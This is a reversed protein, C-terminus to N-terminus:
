SPVSNKNTLNKILFQAANSPGDVGSMLKQMSKAKQQMEDDHLASEILSLLVKKSLDKKRLQIANGYLVCENINAVQEQQLGMGIFPKGTLCATQVTGEGGHIISLDIKGALKHAPLLDCIYINEHQSFIAASSGLTRKMPCVVTLPLAALIHLMKLVIEKGGSSGMAFYVIPLKRPLEDFWSPLEGELKAYIPGVYTYNSPLNSIGSIEPLTTILNHDADLADITLKPLQVGYEKALQQFAKPKYTISTAIKRYLKKIIDVPLFKQSLIPPLALHGKLFYIKTYTLPKIYFLPTQCARASIFLSLTTGIVVAVPQYLHIIRQESEIRHKLMKYTFPHKIGKMQDVKMIQVVDKETLHPELHIFTFNAEEILYAYKTSYGIFICTFTNCCKKAVEISRTTEALNFTEPAFLLVKNLTRV